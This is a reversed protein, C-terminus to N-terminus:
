EDVLIAKFLEQILLRTTVDRAKMQTMIRLENDTLNPFNSVTSEYLTNLFEDDNFVLDDVFDSKADYLNQFQEETM